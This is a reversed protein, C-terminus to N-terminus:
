HKMIMFIVFEDFNQTKELVDFIKSGVVVNLQNINFIVYGSVVPYYLIRMERSASVYVYIVVYDIYLIKNLLLRVDYLFIYLSREEYSISLKVYSDPNDDRIEFLIFDVHVSVVVKSEALVFIIQIVFVLHSM